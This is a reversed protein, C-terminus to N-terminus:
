GLIQETLWKGQSRVQTEKRNGLPWSMDDKGKLSLGVWVNRRELGDEARALSEVKGIPKGVELLPTGESLAILQKSSMTCLPHMRTRQVADAAAVTKPTARSLHSYVIYTPMESVSLRALLSSAHVYANMSAEREEASFGAAPEHSPFLTRYPVENARRPKKASGVMTPQSSQLHDLRIAIQDVFGSALIYKLKARDTAELPQLTQVDRASSTQQQAIRLLQQRLELAEKMGKERIFFQRCKTAFKDASFPQSCMAIATLLKLADSRDDWRSLQGQARGYAAMLEQADNDIKAPRRVRQDEDQSDNEEMEVHANPDAPRPLLVEPVSLAAVLATAHSMLGQAQALLMIKAFRPALPYAALALGTDTIKGSMNVAGLYRLLNEANTLAKRDPPTPFPFNAVNPFDVSKILLAVNEVPLCLIDPVASSAFDREYVASSYLRYCHGPGTRGARGARQAASAKSIWGVKFTQVGCNPDYQKSKSRGCDFVYRIGPITLSTEAVNTALVILRSGDPVAQFVKMQQATPLQSHLPLIHMKLGDSAKEGEIDFEQGQDNKQEAHDTTADDLDSDEGSMDEAVSSDESGHYDDGNGASKIFTTVPHKDNLSIFGNTQPNAAQELKKTLVDIEDKGTLFVLMAGPPLKRHGKSVKQFMEEVYDRRTRRAFHEVVSYQRGEAQIVPPAGNRFLAKNQTFDELRLTASMIILKLPYYLDPNERALDARLEVIRSLLGILVDTNVSREHAEDIVIASYKSLPFDNAVERLLIGDTMFKIATKASVTTDFRVQHGVRDGMAGMEIAVREGVSTAAVRRPQTVGIMGRTKDAKTYTKDGINSGYGSEHLMQPIQTTKGSGTAGWVISTTNANITEMIRQEEQVVPLKLRAEQIDPDRPIVVSVAPRLSQPDSVPLTELKKTRQAHQDKKLPQAQAISTMPASPTFGLAANRQQTAWAKFASTREKTDDPGSESSTEDTDESEDSTDDDMNDDPDRGSASQPIDEAESSNQSNKGVDSFGQWSDKDSEAEDGSVNESSTPRRFEQDNKKRRKRKKIEPRGQADLHMPDKLGSGLTNPTSVKATAPLTAPHSDDRHDDGRLTIRGQVEHPQFLIAENQEVNINQDHERLARQLTERQTEKIRGLNKSSKLLSTDVKHSALKKILNLNEEKQLKVDIYHDLRKRKKGSIQQNPQQARLEQRLRQKQLEHESPVIEVANADTQPSEATTSRQAKQRAIAKQKRLRPVFKPM